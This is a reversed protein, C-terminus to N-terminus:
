SVADNKNYIKVTIRTGRMMMAIWGYIRCKANVSWDM